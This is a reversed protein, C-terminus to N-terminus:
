WAFGMRELHQNVKTELNAVRETIEPLRFEYREALVLVREALAHSIRDMEDEIMAQVASLWKDDVTLAKIEEVTLEPFKAYAAKDLASETEKIRKKLDSETNTLKLWAKLAAEEEAADADGKIEKLRVNVNGKNVKELDAFAGDEGGQEEELETKEAEVTELEATLQDIQAQEGAFFRAVVYEKPVLDCAWGKDKQKGNKGEEIIRYTEAKWGDAALLYCDDQMTESWYDMLHQYIDYKDVLPKGTYHALLDESIDFIVQKPDCGADLGKLYSATRERWQDYHARMKERFAVFEPHEFITPRVDSKDIKLEFYGPRCERLLVQKMTPYVDWYPQLADIDAAPIGGRLHGEIDQRDEEKQSDIYRPLNLNFENKEIEEFPVMRAYGPIDNGKWFTDVIRHIDQSRLRNKPGDKM